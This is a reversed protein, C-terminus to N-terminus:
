KLTATVATCLDDKELSSPYRHRKGALRASLLICREDKIVMTVGTAKLNTASNEEPKGAPLVASPTMLIVGTLL